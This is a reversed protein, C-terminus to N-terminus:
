VIGSNIEMIYLNGLTTGGPFGGDDGFTIFTQGPTSNAAITVYSMFVYRTFSVEPLTAWFVEDPAVSGAWGQIFFVDDGQTITPRKITSAGSGIVWHNIMYTKKEDTTNDPFVIQTPDVSGGAEVWADMDGVFPVQTVGLPFEDDIGELGLGVM